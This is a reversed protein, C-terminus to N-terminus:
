PQKAREKARKALEAYERDLEAGSLNEVRKREIQNTAQVETAAKELEKVEAAAQNAQQEYVERKGQSEAAHASARASQERLKAAALEAELHRGRLVLFLIGLAAALATWLAVPVRQLYSWITKIM